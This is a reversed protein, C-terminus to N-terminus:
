KMPTRIPSPLSRTTRLSQWLSTPQSNPIKTSQSNLRRKYLDELWYAAWIAFGAIFAGHLNAWVLMILPLIWWRRQDGRRMQELIGTWVVVLLLTFLHPRALWHLSAAAAALITFCLSLLVIRSRQMCQRYVLAFTVALMLACLYVVGNLGAVKYASAFIVQALWEHPTLAAGQMTHSFLDHTPIAHHSIIYSGITLHRGLDGDQNLLRSGLGIVGLFIAAFLVNELRPLLYAPISLRLRRISLSRVLTTM